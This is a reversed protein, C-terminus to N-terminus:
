RKLNAWTTAANGQPEVPLPDVPTEGNNIAIANDRIDAPSIRTDIFPDVYKFRVIGDGDVIFTTPAALDLFPAKVDYAVITALDPDQLLPFTLMHRDRMTQALNPPDVSIALLAIGEAELDGLVKQYGALQENCFPCFLGRYF